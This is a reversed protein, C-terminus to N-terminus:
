AAADRADLEQRHVPNGTATCAAVSSAAAWVQGDVEQASRSNQAIRLVESEYLHVVQNLGSLGSLLVVGLMILVLGYGMAMKVGVTIRVSVEGRVVRQTM